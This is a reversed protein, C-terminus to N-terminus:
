SGWGTVEGTETDETTEEREVRNKRGAKRTIMMMMTVM